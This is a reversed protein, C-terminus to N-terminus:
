TSAARGLVLRGIKWRAEGPRGPDVGVGGGDGVHVLVQEALAAEGALPDVVDVRECRRHRVAHGLVRQQAVVQELADERPGPEHGVDLQEVLEGRVVEHRRRALVAPRAAVPLEQRPDEAPGAVRGPAPAAAGIGAMARQFITSLRRRVSDAGSASAVSTAAQVSGDTEAPTHVANTRAVTITGAASGTSGPQQRSPPADGLAAVHPGDALVDREGRRVHAEAEREERVLRPQHDVRDHSRQRAQVDGLPVQEFPRGGRLRLGAM